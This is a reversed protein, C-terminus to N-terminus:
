GKDRRGEQADPDDLRALVLAKEEVDTRSEPALSDDKLQV